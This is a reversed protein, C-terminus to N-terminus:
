RQRSIIAIAYTIAMGCAAVVGALAFSGAIWEWASATTRMESVDLSAWELVQGTMMWHGLGISGALIFPVLPPVSINSALLTIAKNLRLRHALAAAIVMQFGWFPAIGWFLGLGVALAVQSPKHAHEAFFERLARRPTPRQRQSWAARLASPVTWTQVVLRVNVTTIYALDWIPRFHSNRIGDAYQCKIPVGVIPAGTWSARVMAELEFAYRESSVRLRRFLELPYCRFGCQTDGLRVGTEVRFWFTSAANSRRRHTPCGAAHFDRIGVIIAGAQDSAAALFAPIDEPFHQGDADITIAHSFGLEGARILGARLAAGKGFNRELRVVTCDPLAPLPDTSGDDVVIVSCYHRAERAVAAVTAAHNFCPIVVCCQINSVSWGCGGDAGDVGSSTETAPWPVM